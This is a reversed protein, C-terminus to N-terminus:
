HKEQLLNVISGVSTLGEVEEPALQVGFQQELELVLMLHGMSDWNEITSPSSNLDIADQPVNFITAVIEVVREQTTESSM